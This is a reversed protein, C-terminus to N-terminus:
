NKAFTKSGRLEGLWGVMNYNYLVASRSMAETGGALVLDYRNAKMLNQAGSSNDVADVQYGSEKLGQEIVASIKKEDEVLLIKTSM